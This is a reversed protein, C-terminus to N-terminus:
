EFDALSFSKVKIYEEEQVRSCVPRLGHNLILQPYSSMWMFMTLLNLFSFDGNRPYMFSPVLAYDVNEMIFTKDVVQYFGGVQDQQQYVKTINVLWGRNGNNTMFYFTNISFSQQYKQTVKYVKMFHEIVFKRIRFQVKGIRYVDCCARVIGGTQM